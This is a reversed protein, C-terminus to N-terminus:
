RGFGGDVGLCQGTVYSAKDALWFIADAVEDAAGFRGLPVDQRLASLESQDFLANMETDIVGPAVCNVRVGSPALEKAMAKTFAIVGGKAASYVSECSAGVDGWVSSVNVIAGRKEAIYPQAYKTMYVVGKLDVGVVSSIADDSTDVLPAVCAIGANNVLVSPTGLTGRCEEIARRCQAPDSVDAKVALAFAGNEALRTILAQAAADNSQYVVCVAYGESAFKAATAAGIGRSAGTIIVTKM